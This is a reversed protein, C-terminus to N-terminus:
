KGRVSHARQTKGASLAGSTASASLNSADSSADPTDSGTRTLTISPYITSVFISLTSIDKKTCGACIVGYDSTWTQTSSDYTFTLAPFDNDYYASGSERNYQVCPTYGVHYNGYYTQVMCSAMGSPVVIESKENLCAVASVRQDGFNVYQGATYPLLGDIYLSDTGNKMIILNWTTEYVTGYSYQAKAVAKYTGTLDAVNIETDRSGVGAQTLSITRSLTEESDSYVVN